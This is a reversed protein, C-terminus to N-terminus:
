VDSAGCLVVALVAALEGDREAEAEVLLLTGDDEDRFGYYDPDIGRFIQARTRRVPAQAAEEAFLERVGPLEKAAGFYKYGGAGVLEAGEADDAPASKAYDPGGLELIRKEWHRKERIHKNIQDNLDRIRHEGLAANQIEAVGRRIDSIVQRRWKEAEPLM